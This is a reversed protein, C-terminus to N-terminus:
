QRNAPAVKAVPVIWYRYVDNNNKGLYSLALPFSSSSFLFFLMWVSCYLMLDPALSTYFSVCVFYFHCWCFFHSHNQGDLYFLSFLLVIGVLLFDCKKRKEHHLHPNNKKTSILFMEALLLTCNHKSRPQKIQKREKRASHKGLSIILFVDHVLLQLIELLFVLMAGYRPVFSRIEYNCTFVGQFVKLKDGHLVKARFFQCPQKLCYRYLTLPQSLYNEVMHRLNDKM